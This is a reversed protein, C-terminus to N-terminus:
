IIFPSFLKLNTAELRVSNAKMVSCTFNHLFYIFFAELNPGAMCGWQVTNFLLCSNDASVPRTQTITRSFGVNFWLISLLLLFSKCRPPSLFLSLCPSPSFPFEPVKATAASAESVFVPLPPFFSEHKHMVHAHGPLRRTCDRGSLSNLQVLRQLHPSPWGSEKDGFEPHFVIYLAPWGREGVCRHTIVWAFVAVCVSACVWVGVYYQQGAIRSPKAIGWHSPSLRGIVWVWGVEDWRYILTQGDGPGHYASQSQWDGHWAFTSWHSANLVTGQLSLFVGGCDHVAAPLHWWLHVWSWHADSNRPPVPPCPIFVYPSFTSWHLGCCLLYM